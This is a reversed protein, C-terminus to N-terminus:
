LSLLWPVDQFVIHALFVHGILGRSMNILAEWGCLRFYCGCSYEKTQSVINLLLTICTLHPFVLCSFSPFLSSRGKLSRHFSLASYVWFPPLARRQGRPEVKEWIDWGLAALTPSLTHARALELPSVRQAKRCLWSCETYYTCVSGHARFAGHTLYAMDIFFGNQMTKCPPDM